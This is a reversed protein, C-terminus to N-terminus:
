GGSTLSRYFYYARTEIGLIGGCSVNGEEM